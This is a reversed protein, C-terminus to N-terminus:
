VVASPCSGVSCYPRSGGWADSLPRCCAVLAAAQTPLAHRIALMRVLPVRGVVGPLNGHSRGNVHSRSGRWGNRWGLRSSEVATIVSVIEKVGAKIIATFTTATKITTTKM